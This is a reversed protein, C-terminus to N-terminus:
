SMKLCVLPNVCINMEHVSALDSLPTRLHFGANGGLVCQFVFSDGNM